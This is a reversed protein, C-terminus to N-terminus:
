ALPVTTGDFAATLHLSGGLAALYKSVTTLELNNGREIQSVRAQSVGLAAAMERQTMSRQKRLAALNLATDIEQKYAEVRARRHPDANIAARMEDFRKSV